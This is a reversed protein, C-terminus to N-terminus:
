PLPPPHACVLRLTASLFKFNTVKFVTSIVLPAPAPAKLLTRMGWRAEKFEVTLEVAEPEKPEPKPQLAAAAAAEGAAEAEAEGAGGEAQTAACCLM